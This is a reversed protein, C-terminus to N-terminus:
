AKELSLPRCRDSCIPRIRHSVARGSGDSCAPPHQALVFGTERSPSRRHENPAIPGASPRRSARREGDRRAVTRRQREEAHRDDRESEGQHLPAPDVRGLLAGAVERVVLGHGPEEVAGMEDRREVPRKRVLDAPRDRDEGEVEVAQALDVVEEAMLAAVLRDDAHRMRHGFERALIREDPPEAPVLEGDGAEVGRRM